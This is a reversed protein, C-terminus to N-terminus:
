RHAIPHQGVSGAGGATRRPCSMVRWGFVRGAGASMGACAKKEESGMLVSLKRSREVNAVFVRSSFTENM